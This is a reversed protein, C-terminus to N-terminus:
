WSEAQELARDVAERKTLGYAHTTLTPAQSSFHTAEAIWRGDTEQELTIAYSESM